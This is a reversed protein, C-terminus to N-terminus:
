NIKGKQSNKKKKYSVFKVRLQASEPTGAQLLQDYLDVAAGVRRLQIQEKLAAESVEELFPAITEPMLSQVCM